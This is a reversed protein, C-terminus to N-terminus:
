MIEDFPLHFEIEDSKYKYCYEGLFYNNEMVPEKGCATCTKIPKKHEPCILNGDKDKAADKKDLYCKCEFIFM